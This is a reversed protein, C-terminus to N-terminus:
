EIRTLPGCKFAIIVESFIKLLDLTSVIIYLQPGNISHKEQKLPSKWCTWSETYLGVNLYEDMTTKHDSILFKESPGPNLIPCKRFTCCSTIYKGKTPLFFSFENPFQGFITAYVINRTRIIDPCGYFAVNRINSVSVTSGHKTWFNLQLSPRGAGGGWGWHIHRHHDHKM